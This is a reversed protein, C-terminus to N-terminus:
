DSIQYHEFTLGLNDGRYGNTLLKYTVGNSLYIFNFM